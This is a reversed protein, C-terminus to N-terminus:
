ASKMALSIIMQANQALYKAQAHIAIIQVDEVIISIRPIM